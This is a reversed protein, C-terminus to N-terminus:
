KLSMLYAVVEARKKADSVAVVMRTGPVMKNPATLFRELNAATWQVKSQKLASSYPFATSAATRDGVGRLNPGTTGKQGATITHCMMCRQKFTVGGATADQANAPVAGCAAAMAVAVGIMRLMM